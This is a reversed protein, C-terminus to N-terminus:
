IYSETGPIPKSKTSNKMMETDPTNPLSLFMYFSATAPRHNPEDNSAMASAPTLMQRRSRPRKLHTVQPASQVYPTRPKTRSKARTSTHPRSICNNNDFSISFFSKNLFSMGITRELHAKMLPLLMELPCQPQRPSMPSMACVVFGVYHRFLLLHM